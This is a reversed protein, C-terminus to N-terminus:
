FIHPYSVILFMDTFLFYMYTNRFYICNGRYANQITLAM